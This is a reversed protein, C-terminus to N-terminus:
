KRTLNAQVDFTMFALETGSGNPALTFKFRIFAYTFDGDDTHLGATTKSSVAVASVDTYEVGDNSGQAEVSLDPTGGTQNIISEIFVTVAVHNMGGMPHPDSYLVTSTGGEAAEFQGKAFSVIMGERGDNNLAM